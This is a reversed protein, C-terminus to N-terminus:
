KLIRMLTLEDVAVVQQSLDELGLPHLKGFNRLPEVGEKV